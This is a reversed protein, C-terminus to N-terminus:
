EDVPVPIFELVTQLLRQPKEEQILHGANRILCFQANPLGNHYVDLDQPVRWKDEGGLVLLVDHPVSRLDKLVLDEEYNLLSDRVALRSDIDSLTKYYEAPTDEGLATLDFVANELIQRVKKLSLMRCAIAGWFPSDLMRVASPMEDTLGGPTLLIIRGIREPATQALRLAYASAMGFAMVHTSEIHLADLLLEMAAAQEEISYCFTEPRASFGHGPLDPAIVRYYRSLEYFVKRWTFASQGVTHLLLLPEGSGAEFYHIKAAERKQGAYPDYDATRVTRPEPEAEVVPAAEQEPEEPTVPAAPEAAPEEAAAQPPTVFRVSEIPDGDATTPMFSAPEEKREKRRSQKKARKKPAPAEEAPAPPLLIEVYEGTHESNLMKKVQLSLNM